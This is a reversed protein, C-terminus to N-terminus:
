SKLKQQPLVMWPRFVAYCVYDYNFPYIYVESNGDSCLSVRALFFNDEGDINVKFLFFTNYNNARLWKRLKKNKVFAKIQSQEWCLSDLSRGLIALITKFDSDQVIEFVQAKTKPTPKGSVNTGWEQFCGDVYKFANGANALTETGDTEPIEIEEEASIIRLISVVKKKMMKAIKRKMVKRVSECILENLEGQREIVFEQFEEPTRSSNTSSLEDLAMRAGDSAASLIDKVCKEKQLPTAYAILEKTAM